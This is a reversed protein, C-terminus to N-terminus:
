SSSILVVYLLQHVIAVLFTLPAVKYTLIIFYTVIAIHNKLDPGLQVVLLGFSM